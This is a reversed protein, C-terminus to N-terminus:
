VAKTGWRALQRLILIKLETGSIKQFVYSRALPNDGVAQRCADVLGDIGKVLWGRMIKGTRPDTNHWAEGARFWRAAHAPSDM